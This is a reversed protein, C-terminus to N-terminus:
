KAPQSKVPAAAQPRAPAPSGLGYKKNISDTVQQATMSPNANKMAQWEDALQKQSPKAASQATTSSEGFRARWDLGGLYKSLSAENGKVPVRTYDGESESVVVKKMPEGPYAKDATVSTETTVEESGKLKGTVYFEDGVREIYRPYMEVANGNADTFARLGMPQNRGDVVDGLPIRDVKEKSLKSIKEGTVPDTSEVAGVYTSSVGTEVDGVWAKAKGAGDGAGDKSPKVPAYITTTYEVRDQLMRELAKVAKEKAGEPDEYAGYMGLEVMEDAKADILQDFEYKKEKPFLYKGGKLRKVSGPDITETVMAFEDVDGLFQDTYEATSIALEADRLNGTFEEISVGSRPAGTIPDRNNLFRVINNRVEPDYASAKGSQMRLLAKEARKGMQKNYKAVDNLQGSWMQMELQGEPNNAFYDNAAAMDGGFEEAKAQVKKAYENRVYQGWQPQYTMYPDGISGMTQAALKQSRQQKAADLEQQRRALAANRSAIAGVPWQMRAVPVSYGGVNLQAVDVQGLDAQSPAWAFDAPQMWSGQQRRQGGPASGPAEPPIVPAERTTVQPADAGIIARSEATADAIAGEIDAGTRAQQSYPGGDVM